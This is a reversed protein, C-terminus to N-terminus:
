LSSQLRGFVYTIWLVYERCEKKIHKIQGCTLGSTAQLRLSTNVPTIRETCLSVCVRSTQLYLKQLEQNRSLETLATILNSASPGLFTPENGPM